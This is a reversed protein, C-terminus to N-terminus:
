MIVKRVSSGVTVSCSWGALSTPPNSVTHLNLLNVLMQKMMNPHVLLSLPPSSPLSSINAATKLLIM